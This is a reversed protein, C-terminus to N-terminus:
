CTFFVLSTRLIARLAVIVKIIRFSPDTEKYDCPTKGEEQHKTRMHQHLATTNDTSRLSRTIQPKFESVTYPGTKKGSEPLFFHLDRSGNLKGGRNRMCIEFSSFLILGVM